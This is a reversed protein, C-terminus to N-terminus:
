KRAERELKRLRSEIEREVTKQLAPVKLAAECQGHDFERAAYIRDASSVLQLNPMGPRPRLFPNKM